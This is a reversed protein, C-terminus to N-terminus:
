RCSLLSEFRDLLDDRAAPEVQFRAKASRVWQARALCDFAEESRGLETLAAARGVLATTLQRTAIDIAAAFSKDAGAPDDEVSFQFHALETCAEVSSEDYERAHELSQRATELSPSQENSLQILEARLIHLAASGPWRALLAEVGDLAKAIEGSKMERRVESLQRKFNGNKM